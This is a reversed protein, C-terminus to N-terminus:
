MPSFRQVDEAVMLASKAAGMSGEFGPLGAGDGVNYLNRISTRHGPRSGSITRFGPWEGRYCTKTLVQARNDFDPYIDRLDEMLAAFEAKIDDPELSNLPAGGVTYLHQGPPAVGDAEFSPVDIMNVRRSCGVALASYEMLLEPSSFHLWMIATPTIKKLQHTFGEDLFKTPVLKATAAPGMNSVVIPAHVTHNEQQHRLNVGTVKFDEVNVGKASAGTIVDGGAQKVLDAMKKWLRISGGEIFGFTIPANHEMVKFYEGAPLEHSNVTLLSSITAQFVGHIKENTTYHSLWDKFSIDNSPPCWGRARKLAGLVREAEDDSIAVDRIIRTTGGEKHDYIKGALWTAVKQSPHVGSPIGVAHCVQEVCGGTQIALGGTACLFGDRDVTSFRGGLYARKEMLLVRRGSYALLAAICCGGVGSGIVIADYQRKM